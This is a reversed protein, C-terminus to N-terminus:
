GATAAARQPDGWALFGPVLFRREIQGYRLPTCDAATMAGGAAVIIAHGAAIDWESTQGFRPYLDAEGEAVKCFKLASGCALQAMDFRKLYDGTAADLHSRSVVALAGQAPWRRTRIARRELIGGSGDCLHGSAPAAIVGAVPVGGSVLAINVAYDDRGAIFERTGDLPDVLLFSGGLSAAPARAYAEESIVPVDPLLAALGKLIVAESAEDAATVPSTDAKLRQEAQAAPIARIAAAADLAIATLDALLLAAQEPTM